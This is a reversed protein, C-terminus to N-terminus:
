VPLKNNIELTVNLHFKYILIIIVNYLINPVTKMILVM